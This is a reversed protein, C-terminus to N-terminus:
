VFDCRCALANEGILAVPSKAAIDAPLILVAKEHKRSGDFSCRFAVRMISYISPANALADQQVQEPRRNQV